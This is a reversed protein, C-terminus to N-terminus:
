NRQFLYEGGGQNLRFQDLKGNSLSEPDFQIVIGAPEFRFETESYPTLPLANQGTAQAVLQQNNISIRIDLPVAESSFLGTLQELKESTLEIPARSFDLADFDKDYIHSLVAILVDNFKFNVGNSLVTIAIGDMPNFAANSVFGDISGNHGYFTKGYFPMAFLGLGYGDELSMMKNLSDESILENAFLSYIFANTERATSVMAGAAHPVSLHTEPQLQWGGNFRYSSAEDEGESTGSGFYTKELALPTSINEAM